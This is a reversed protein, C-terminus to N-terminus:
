RAGDGEFYKGGVGTGCEGGNRSRKM